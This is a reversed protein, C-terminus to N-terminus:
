YQMVPPSCVGRHQVLIQSLKWLYEVPNRYFQHICPSPQIHGPALACWPVPAGLPSTSSGATSCMAPSPCACLAAVGMTVILLVADDLPFSCSGVWSSAKGAVFVPLLPVGSSPAFATRAM